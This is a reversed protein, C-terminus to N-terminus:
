IKIRVHTGEPITGGTVKANIIHKTFKEAARTFDTFHVTAGAGAGYILEVGGVGGVGLGGLVQGVTKWHRLRPSQTRTGVVWPAYSVATSAEGIITDFSRGFSMKWSTEPSGFKESLPTVHGTRQVMGVGRRWYPPPPRNGPRLPPYTTITEVFQRVLRENITAFDEELRAKGTTLASLMGRLNILVEIFADRRAM